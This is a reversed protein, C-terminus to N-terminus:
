VIFFLVIFTHSENRVQRRNLLYIQFDTRGPASCLSLDQQSVQAACILHERKLTIFLLQIAAYRWDAALASTSYWTKYRTSPQTNQENIVVVGVLVCLLTVLVTKIESELHNEGSRSLQGQTNDWQSRRNKQDLVSVHEQCYGNLSMVILVLRKLICKEHYGARVADNNISTSFIQYSLLEELAYDYIVCELHLCVGACTYTVHLM